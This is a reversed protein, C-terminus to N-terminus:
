RTARGPSTTGLTEVSVFAGRPGKASSIEPTTNCFTYNLLMNEGSEVTKHMFSYIFSKVKKIEFLILPPAWRGSVGLSKCLVQCAIQKQPFFGVPMRYTKPGNKTSGCVLELMSLDSLDHPPHGWKELTGQNKNHPQRPTGRFHGPCSMCSVVSVGKNIDM